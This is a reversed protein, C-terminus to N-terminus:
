VGRWGKMICVLITNEKGNQFIPGFFRQLSLMLLVIVLIQISISPSLLTNLRFLFSMKLHFVQRIHILNFSMLAWQLFYM